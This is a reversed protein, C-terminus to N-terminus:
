FEDSCSWLPFAECAVWNAGAGGAYARCGNITKIDFTPTQTWSYGSRNLWWSNAAGTDYRYGTMTYTTTRKPVAFKIYTIFESFGNTSGTVNLYPTNWTSGTNTTEYYRQCLALENGINRFEFGSAVNGRELQVATIYIQSNNINGLSNSMAYYPTSSGASAIFRIELSSTNATTGITKSTVSPVTFTFSYKTWTWSVYTTGIHGTVTASPSGGTGFNQSYAVAIPGTGYAWFSITVQQGSFTRVDEIFQSVFYYNITTFQYDTRLYLSNDVRQGDVSIPASSVYQSEPYYGSSNLKWRDAGYGNQYVATINRQNIRIDGNIIANRFGRGSTGATLSSVKYDLSTTVASGNVGVKAQLAEIADNADAHQGAHDPSTLSSSGTPNSLADLSTPFNTAM